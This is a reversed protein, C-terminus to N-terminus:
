IADRVTPFHVGSLAAIAAGLLACHCAVASTMAGQDREWLATNGEIDTFLVTVTGSPVDAL